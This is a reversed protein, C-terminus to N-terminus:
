EGHYNPFHRIKDQETVTYVPDNPFDKPTILNTKYTPLSDFEAIFNDLLEKTFHIQNGKGAKDSAYKLYLTTLDSKNFELRFWHEKLLWPEVGVSELLFNLFGADHSAAEIEHSRMLARAVDEFEPMQAIKLRDALTKFTTRAHFLDSRIRSFAESVVEIKLIAESLKTKGSPLYWNKSAEVMVLYGPLKQSSPTYSFTEAPKLINWILGEPPVGFAAAIISLEHSTITKKKHNEINAISSRPIKYGVEETLKSLDEASIKLYKRYQVIHNAVRTAYDQLWKEQVTAETM